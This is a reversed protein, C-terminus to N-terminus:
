ALKHAIIYSGKLVKTDSPDATAQAWQLQVNGPTNSIFAIASSVFMANSAGQGSSNIAVGANTVAGGDLSDDIFQITAGSPLTFAFKIDPTTGSNYLAVFRIAWVENASVALVLHDDNQLTSSNNVTEDASKYIIQVQNNLNTFNNNITSRSTSGSDNAGLSTVQAM